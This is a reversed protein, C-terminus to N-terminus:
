EQRLYASCGKLAAFDDVILHVGFSRNMESFRGKDCFAVGFNNEDVFPRLARALGGILFIGGEPLTTLALDGFYSGAFGCFVDIVHRTECNTQGSRIIERSSRKSAPYLVENVLAMGRGSIVGEVEAFGNKQLLYNVIKQETSNRVPLRTHGAEAPPVVVGNVTPISLAINFGTGIGCVLMRKTRDIERTGYLHVIDKNDLVTLAYSQAQMDNIICVKTTKTIKALANKHINWNINTLEAWDGHTPGAVAICIGDVSPFSLDLMYRNLIDELSSVASNDYRKLTDKRLVSGVSLALRTNTGGVDAVLHIDERLRM